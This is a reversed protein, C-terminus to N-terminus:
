SCLSEGAKETAIIANNLNAAIADVLASHNAFQVGVPGCLRWNDGPTQMAWRLDVASRATGTSRLNGVRYVLKMGVLPGAVPHVRGVVRLHMPAVLRSAAGEDSQLAIEAVGEPRQVPVAAGTDSRLSDIIASPGPAKGTKVLAGYTALGTAGIAWLLLKLFNGAIAPFHAVLLDYALKRVLEFAKGIRGSKAVPATGDTRRIEPPDSVIM